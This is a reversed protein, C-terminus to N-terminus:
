RRYQLLFIETGAPLEERSILIVDSDKRTVAYPSASIFDQVPRLNATAGKLNKMAPASYAMPIIVRPAFQRAVKVADGPSLGAGGAPVLLVDVEGFQARQEETLVATPRGLHAIRLDGAQILYATNNGGTPVPTVRLDDREISEGRVVRKVENLFPRVAVTHSHEPGSTSITVLHAGTSPAELGLVSGDFPDTVLAVGGPSHIYFCAHGLWQITTQKGPAAAVSPHGAPLRSTPPPLDVPPAEATGPAPGPAPLGPAEPADTAEAPPPIADVAVVPGGTSTTVEPEPTGPGRATALVLIGLLFLAALVLVVRHSPRRASGGPNDTPETM